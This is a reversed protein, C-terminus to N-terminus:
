NNNVDILLHHLEEGESVEGSITMGTINDVVEKFVRTTNLEISLAQRPEWQTELKADELGIPEAKVFGYGTTIMLSKIVETTWGHMIKTSAIGNTEVIGVRFRLLTPSLIVRDTTEATENKAYYSPVGIQYEDLLKIHAFEGKPRPANRKAPYSFRPIGVLTDVFKQMVKVDTDSM